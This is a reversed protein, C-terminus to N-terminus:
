NIKDTIKKEVKATKSKRQKRPRKPALCKLTSVKGARKLTYRGKVKNFILGNISKIKGESIDFVVDKARQLKKRELCQFLYKKLAPNYKSPFTKSFAALKKLKTAKELKSWPLNKDRIQEKSLFDSVASINDELPENTASKNLLMTQYKINKLEVCEDSM